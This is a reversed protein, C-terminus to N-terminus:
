TRGQFTQPGSFVAPNAQLAQPSEPTKGNKLNKSQFCKCFLREDPKVGLSAWISSKAAEDPDTIRLAKPVWFTKEAEEEEQSSAERPRKGLTLDLSSSGSRAVSNQPLYPMATVSSQPLYPMPTVSSQPLYPMATVSSGPRSVSWAGNPWGPVRNWFPAVQPQPFPVAPARIGLDSMTSLLLSLPSVESNALGHTGDTSLQTYATVAAAYSQTHPHPERVGNRYGSIYNGEKGPVSNESSGSAVASSLSSKEEKNDGSGLSLHTNNKQEKTNPVPSISKCLVMESGSATIAENEKAPCPLVSPKIARSQSSSTAAVYGNAAINYDHPQIAFHRNSPRRNRRKCGVPVNRLTGGNTWYRKCGRCHHRPQNVNYNNFYCFKTNMSNCRPCPLITDPKKFGKEQGSGDSDTKAVESKSDAEIEEHQSNIAQLGNMAEESKSDAEMKEHQSSIAQLGDEGKGSESDADMKGHPSSIAQIGDEKNNKSGSSSAGVNLSKNPLCPIGDNSRVDDALKISVETAAAVTAASAPSNVATVSLGFLQIAAHRERDPGGSAAMARAGIEAGTRATVEGPVLPAPPM